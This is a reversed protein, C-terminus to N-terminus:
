PAGCRGGRAALDQYVEEFRDLMRDTTMEALAVDRGAAGMREAAERDRLVALLHAALSEADDLPALLGTVGDRVMAPTGGARVGVVATGRMMAEAIVNSSPEPSRSPVAQVWATRLLADLAPQALHGHLTVVQGLARDQIARTIRGRDPGDGAIVLRAAPLERCVRLMADLLLDVGKQAVLRGAFAVTPAGGLPPRPPVVATGNRIVTSVPVGNDRLAAALADSNAVIRGFVRAHRRWSGLQVVTRVLGAASVCGERYCAAGARFRCPSGDPLIRTSIPCITHLGGVHLLAPVRALLPLVWPSLQTLFMRVHVLDPRLERLVTRLRAVAFPNAVQLVRQPWANTGFCTFDAVRDLPIPTATSAFLWADHGRARMGDRLDITIREAGGSLVGYDHLFLIRM